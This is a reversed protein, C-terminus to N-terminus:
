PRSQSRPWLSFNCVISRLSHRHGNPTLTPPLDSLGYKWGDFDPCGDTPELARATLSHTALPIQSPTIPAPANRGLLAYRQVMQAGGSHGAVVLRRLTPVHSSLSTLPADVVASASLGSPANVVDGGM